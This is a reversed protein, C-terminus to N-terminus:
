KVMRVTYESKEGNSAVDTYLLSMKNASFELVKWDGLGDPTTYTSMTLIKNNDKLSWEGEKPFTDQLLIGQNSGSANSHSYTKNGDFTMWTEFDNRWNGIGKENGGSYKVKGDKDYYTYLVAVTEWKGLLQAENISQSPAAEDEKSCAVLLSITLFFVTKIIAKM